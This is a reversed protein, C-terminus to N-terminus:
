RMPLNEKVHRFTPRNQPQQAWCLKLIDEIDPPTGTPIAPREGLTAVKFCIAPNGALGSWPIERSLVEWIVVGFSYMDSAYSACEGYFIEPATWQLTMTTSGNGATRTVLCTSTQQKTTRSTGFDGIKARGDRDLLVNASKLDGHVTENEHLFAMGACVDGIIRRSDGEPLPGKAKRLYARLDGGELLEMVLALRDKRSTIVGHFLVTHPSKLRYMTDVEHMFQKQQKSAREATPAHRRDGDRESKGLCFGKLGHDVNIIKVAVNEGMYDAMYVEGFGGKGLLDLIEVDGEPIEIEGWKQQRRKRRAQALSDVVSEASEESLRSQAGQLRDDQIMKDMNHRVAHMDDTIRDVKNVIANVNSGIHVGMKVNLGDMARNVVAELQEKRRKFLPSTVVQVITHSSRYTKILQLLNSIADQVSKVWTTGGGSKDERLVRDADDLIHLIGSCWNATSTAEAVCERRESAFSLMVLLLTAVEPVFPVTSRDALEQAARAVVEVVAFADSLVEETEGQAAEESSSQPRLIALTKDRIMMRAVRDSITDEREAELVGVPAPWMDVTSPEPPTDLEVSDPDGQSTFFTAGEAIALGPRAHVLVNVDGRPHKELVCMRVAEQVLFNESFGGVMVVSKVGQLEPQDLQEAVAQSISEIPQQFAKRMWAPKLVLVWTGHGGVLEEGHGNKDDRARDMDEMTVELPDNGLETLDIMCEDNKDKWGVKSTEWAQMIRLKASSNLFSTIAQKGAGSAASAIFDQLFEHFLTDLTEAGWPGSRGKLLQCLERKETNCVGVAHIDVTVGGCDVVLYTKGAQWDLRDQFALCAAIPEPCFKLGERDHRDNVLGAMVASNRVTKRQRGPLSAPVTLVWKVSAASVPEGAGPLSKLAADRAHMLLYFMIKSLQMESRNRSCKVASESTPESEVRMRQRGFRRFLKAGVPCSGCAYSKEATDGLSVVSVNDRHVLLSNPSKRVVKEHPQQTDLNRVAPVPDWNSKWSCATGFKGIDIAVVPPADRTGLVPVPYNAHQRKSTRWFLGM